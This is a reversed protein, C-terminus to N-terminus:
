LQPFRLKRIQIFPSSIGVKALVFTLCNTSPVSHIITGVRPPTCFALQLSQM